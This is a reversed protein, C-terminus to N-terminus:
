SASRPTCRKSTSRRPKIREPRASSAQPARRCSARGSRLRTPVAFADDSNEVLILSGDEKSQFRSDLFVSRSDRTVAAHLPLPHDRLNRRLLSDGDLESVRLHLV